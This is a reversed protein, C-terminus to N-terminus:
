GQELLQVTRRAEAISVQEDRTGHSVFVKKGNFRGPALIQEAGTPAFGALIGMKGVRAPYFMSLAITMCAGQSFGIVDAQSISLGQSRPWTDLLDDLAAAPPRMLDVTPWGAGPTSWSYGGQPALHPARPAVIWYDAPFKHAFVWMSN